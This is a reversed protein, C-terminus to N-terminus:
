QQDAEFSWVQQVEPAIGDPDEVLGAGGARRGPQREPLPALAESAIERRLSDPVDGIAVPSAHEVPRVRAREPIEITRGQPEPRVVLESERDVLLQVLQPPRALAQEVVAPHPD